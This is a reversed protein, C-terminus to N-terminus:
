NKRTVGPDGRKEIGTSREREREQQPNRRLDREEEQPRIQM